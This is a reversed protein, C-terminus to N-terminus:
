KKRFADLTIVDGSEREEAEPKEESAPVEDGAAVGDRATTEPAQSEEATEIARIQVGFNVGPDAFGDVAAFPIRLHHKTGGFSLTVRFGEADVGLDWFQHQLVITMESGHQARLSAPIEVGEDQTRFTIYFHHDGVLGSDAAVTLARRVVDRLAEEVWRDYHYPTNPRSPEDM